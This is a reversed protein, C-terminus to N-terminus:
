FRLTTADVRERLLRLIDAADRATETAVEIENVHAVGSPPRTSPDVEPELARLRQILLQLQRSETATFHWRDTLDTVVSDMADVPRPREVLSRLQELVTCVLNTRREILEEVYPPTIGEREAASTDSVIKLTHVLECTTLKGASEFFGSAEMDYGARQEYEDVPQAVTVLPMTACPPKFPFAPYYCLGTSADEIRYAMFAAGVELHGCGAIGINLWAAGGDADGVLQAVAARARSRGVGAVTLSLWENRHSELGRRHTTRRLDLRHLLPQAESKLAVLINIM